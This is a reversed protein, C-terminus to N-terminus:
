GPGGETEYTRLPEGRWYVWEWKISMEVTLESNIGALSQENLEGGKVAKGAETFNKRVM